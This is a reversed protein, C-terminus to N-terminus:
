SRDAGDERRDRDQARRSHSRIYRWIGIIALLNGVAFASLVYLPSTGMIGDLVLGFVVGGVMPVFMILTVHGLIKMLGLPTLQTM